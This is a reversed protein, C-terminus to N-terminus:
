FDKSVTKVMAINKREINILKGEIELELYDNNLSKLIGELEKQQEMSKFLKVQILNGIQKEFHWKKRLIREIGPSSVELFYSEKIFDMKDLPEDIVNNVKECDEISIGDSKDITVRLYFDKGEKIYQVDYLIYGLDQIMPELLKEVKTEINENSLDFKGGKIKM